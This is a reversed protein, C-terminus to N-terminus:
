SGFYFDELELAPGMGPIEALHVIWRVRGVVWIQVGCGAGNRIVNEPIEKRSVWFRLKQLEEQRRRFRFNAEVIHFCKGSQCNKATRGCPCVM